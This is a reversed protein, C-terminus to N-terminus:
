AERKWTVAGGKRFYCRFDHQRRCLVGAREHECMASMAEDYEESSEDIDWCAIAEVKKFADDVEDHVGTENNMMEYLKQIIEERIKM